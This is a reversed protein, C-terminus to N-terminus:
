KKLIVLDRYLKLMRRNERAWTVAQGTAQQTQYPVIIRREIRLGARSCAPLMDTAHDFVSGDECQTPSVIYAMRGEPSLHKACHAVVIEWSAYFDDISMNGLDNADESYRGKAQQWYPPDLLILDARNPAGSPWGTTADHEHIPLTPTSPIRDSAWVRRGMAKAVEITTGSGAFPDVVIQGPDTFFWLLNEVVAPPMRGFYSGDGGDAIQWVDFHQISGWPKDHTAGPPKKYIESVKASNVVSGVTPHTVGLHEAIAEQTYCDLWMDWAKAEREAQETARAEKTWNNITALSVSLLSMIESRREENPMAAFHKSWLESALRRKDAQSLQHGHSANERISIRLIEADTLNGLDEVAITDRKERRHAQWRHFGDVLVGDRAIKVPPLNDIATRYREIVADDERLRPYLEKVFRINEIPFQM